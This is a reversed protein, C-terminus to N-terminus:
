GEREARFRLVGIGRIGAEIVDGHNIPGVGEPTGTVIIDMPELTMIHSISSILEEVPFVMYRTNSKQRYEGNVKLWIDLNQPDIQDPRVVRPGIPAFTDFGKAATWPMGAAMAKQQIDRATIDISITYGLIYERARPPKIQHGRRKIIVALEVEHDIRAAVGPLFVIGEDGIMASPPKLFFKPEEPVSHGMEQAHSRYNRAVGIIKTPRLKLLHGDFDLTPM